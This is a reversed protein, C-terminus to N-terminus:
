HKTVLNKSDELGQFNLPGKGM